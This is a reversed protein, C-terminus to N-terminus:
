RNREAKMISAVAKKVEKCYDKFYHKFFEENFILNLKPKIPCGPLRRAIENTLDPFPLHDPSQEIVQRVHRKNGKKIRSYSM